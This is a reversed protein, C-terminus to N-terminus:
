QGDENSEDGDVLRYHLLVIGSDYAKTELLTLDCGTELRDFLQTGDHLLLPDM